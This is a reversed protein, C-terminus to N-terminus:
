CTAVQHCLCAKVNCNSIKVYENQKSENIMTIFCSDINKIMNYKTMNEIEWIPLHYLVHSLDFIMINSDLIEFYRVAEYLNVVYQCYESVILIRDTVIAKIKNKEFEIRDNYIYVNDVSNFLQLYARDLMRESNCDFSLTIICNEGMSYVLGYVMSLVNIIQMNTLLKYIDYNKPRISYNRYNYTFLYSGYHKKIIEGFNSELGNQIKFEDVLMMPLKNVKMFYMADLIVSKEHVYEMVFQYIIKHNQTSFTWNHGTFKYLESELDYQIVYNNYRINIMGDYLCEDIGCKILTDVIKNIKYEKNYNVYWEGEKNYIIKPYNVSLRHM